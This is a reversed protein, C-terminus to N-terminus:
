YTVVFITWLSTVTMSSHFLLFSFWVLCASTSFPSLLCESMIVPTHFSPFVRAPTLGSGNWYQGRKENALWQKPAGDLTLTEQKGQRAVGPEGGITLCCFVSLWTFIKKDTNNTWGHLIVFMAIFYTGHSVLLRGHECSLRCFFQFLLICCFFFFVFYVCTGANENICAAFISIFNNPEPTDKILFVYIYINKLYNIDEPTLKATRERQRGTASPSPWWSCCTSPMNGVDLIRKFTRLAADKGPSRILDTLLFPPQLFAFPIFLFLFLHSRTPGEHPCATTSIYINSIWYCLQLYWSVRSLTQM